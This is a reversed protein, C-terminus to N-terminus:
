YRSQKKNEEMDNLLSLSVKNLVIEDNVYNIPFSRIKKSM